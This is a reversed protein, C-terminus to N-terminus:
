VSLGYPKILGCVNTIRRDDTLKDHTQLCL